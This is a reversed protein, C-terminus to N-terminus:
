HGGLHSWLLKAFGLILYFKGNWWAPRSDHFSNQIFLFSFRTDRRSTKEMKWNSQPKKYINIMFSQTGTPM